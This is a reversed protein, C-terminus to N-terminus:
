QEELRNYVCSYMHSSIVTSYYFYYKSRWDITFFVVYMFVVEYTVVHSHSSLM